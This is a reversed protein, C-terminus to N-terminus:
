GARPSKRWTEVERSVRVRLPVRRTALATSYRLVDPYEGTGGRPDIGGASEWRGVGVPLREKGEIGESVRGNRVMGEWVTGPPHIGNGPNRLDPDTGRLSVLFGHRHHRRDAPSDKHDQPRQGERFALESSGWPRGTPLGHGPLPGRVGGPHPCHHGQHGGGTIGWRPGPGKCVSMSHVYYTVLVSM